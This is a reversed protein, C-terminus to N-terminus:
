AELGVDETPGECTLCSARTLCAGFFLVQTSLYIWMAVALVGGAVGYASYSTVHSLSSALLVKLILLATTTLVAGGIVDGFAPRSRPVYRFAGAFVLSMLTVYACVHLAELLAPGLSGHARAAFASLATDLALSAAATLGIGVVLAFGVLRDRLWGRVGHWLGKERKVRIGWIRNLSVDLEVLAGSASFLLTTIGVAASVGRASHAHQLSAVASELVHRVESGPAGVVDLVEAHAPDADGVVFGLVTVTLLLLPFISFTAYFSFAAGLRFGEVEDWRTTADSAVRRLQRLVDKVGRCRQLTREAGLALNRPTGGTRTM